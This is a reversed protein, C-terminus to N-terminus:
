FYGVSAPPAARSLVIAASGANRQLPDAAM